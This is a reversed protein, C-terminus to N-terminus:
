SPFALLFATHHLANQMRLFLCHDAANQKRPTSSSSGQIFIASLSTSPFPFISSLCQTQNLQINRHNFTHLPLVLYYTLHHFDLLTHDATQKNTWKPICYQILFLLITEFVFFVVAVRAVADGVCKGLGLGLALGLGDTCTVALAHDALWCLLALRCCSWVRWLFLERVIVLRM